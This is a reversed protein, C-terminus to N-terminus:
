AYKITDPHKTQSLYSLQLDIADGFLSQADNSICAMQKVGMGFNAISIGFFYYHRGVM